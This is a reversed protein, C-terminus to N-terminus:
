FPEAFAGIPLIYFDTQTFIQRRFQAALKLPTDLKEHRRILLLMVASRKLFGDYLGHVGCASVGRSLIEPILRVDERGEATEHEHDVANGVARCDTIRLDDGSITDYQHLDRDSHHTRNGLGGSSRHKAPERPEPRNCELNAREPRRRDRGTFNAPWAHTRAQGSGSCKCDGNFDSDTGFDRFEKENAPM